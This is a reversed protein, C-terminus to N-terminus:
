TLIVSGLDEPLNVRCSWAWVARLQYKWELTSFDSYQSGDRSAWTDAIKKEKMYWWFWNRQPQMFGTVIWSYFDSGCGPNQKGLACVLSPVSQWQWKLYCHSLILLLTLSNNQGFVDSGIHMPNLALSYISLSMTEQENELWIIFITAWQIM